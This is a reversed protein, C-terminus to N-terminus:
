GHENAAQLLFDAATLLAEPDDSTPAKETLYRAASALQESRRRARGILTIAAAEVAPTLRRRGALQRSVYSLSVGATTALNQLGIKRSMAEARIERQTM